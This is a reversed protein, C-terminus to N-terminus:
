KLLIKELRQADSQYPGQQQVLPHLYSRAEEPRDSKLFALAAYWYIAQGLQHETNLELGALKELAKDQHDKEISSLLYYLQVLSNEPDQELLGSMIERSETYNELQYHLIGSETSGRSGQSYARLM